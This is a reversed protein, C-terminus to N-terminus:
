VEKFEHDWPEMDAIIVRQVEKENPITTGHVEGLLIVGNEKVFAIKVYSLNDRFIFHFEM